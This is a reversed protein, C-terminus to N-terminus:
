SSHGGAPHSSGGGDQSVVSVSRTQWRWTVDWSGSTGEKNKNLAWHWRTSDSDTAPRPHCVWRTTAATPQQHEPGYILGLTGGAEAALQLRRSETLSTPRPLEVLVSSVSSSRLATEAAWLADKVEHVHVFLLQGPDMFASLGHTYPEGTGFRVIWVARGGAAALAIALFALASRGAVEHVRGFRLSPLEPALRAEGRLYPQLSEM